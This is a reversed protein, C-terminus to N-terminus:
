VTTAVTEEDLKSAIQSEAKLDAVAVIEVSRVLWVHHFLPIFRQYLVYVAFIPNSKSYNHSYNMWNIIYKDLYTTNSLYNNACGSEMEKTTVDQDKAENKRLRWPFIEGSKTFAQLVPDRPPLPTELTWMSGTGLFFMGQYLSFFRLTTFDVM